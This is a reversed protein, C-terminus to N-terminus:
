RLVTKAVVLNDYDDYVRVALTHEGAAITELSLVYDHEQADSVKTTPAAV